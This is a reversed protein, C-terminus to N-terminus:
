GASKSLCVRFHGAERLAVKFIHPSEGLLPRILLTHLPRKCLDGPIVIESQQLAPAAPLPSLGCWAELGGQRTRIDDEKLSIM